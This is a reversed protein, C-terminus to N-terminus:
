TKESLSVNERLIRYVSYSITALHVPRHSSNRWQAYGCPSVNTLEFKSAAYLVCTGDRMPIRDVRTRLVAIARKCSHKMMYAFVYLSRRESFEGNGTGEIPAKGGNEVTSHDVLLGRPQEGLRPPANPFRQARELPAGGVGTVSV